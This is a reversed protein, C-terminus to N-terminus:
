DLIDQLDPHDRLEEQEESLGNNYIDDRLAQWQSHRVLVNLPIYEIDAFEALARRHTGESLQIAGNRAIAGFPEFPDKWQRRKEKEMKRGQKIKYGNDKFEQYLEDLYSCRVDIFEEITDCGSASGKTELRKEYKQVYITEEWERGDVYRQKLGQYRWNDRWSSQKNDWNGGEIQGLGCIKCIHNNDRKIQEPRVWILKRPEAPADFVIRNLHRNKKTYLIFKHYNSLAFEKSSRALHVPGEQRLMELARKGYYAPM